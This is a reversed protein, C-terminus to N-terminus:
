FCVNVLCSFCTFSINMSLLFFFDFYYSYHMPSRLSPPLLLLDGVGKQSIGIIKRRIPVKKGKHTDIKEIQDIMKRRVPANNIAIYGWKGIKQPRGHQLSVYM